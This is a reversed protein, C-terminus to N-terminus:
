GIDSVRVSRGEAASLRIADLVAQGAVGDHFTAPRPETAAIPEGLIRRRFADALRTYPARDLGTAHLWDYTTSFFDFPPPQPAPNTLDAPVEVEREGTADAHRVRDGDIWVTGGTGAIRTTMMLPGWSGVTSQLVGDVGDVTRFHVTFSDEATQGRDAVVPLGASVSDFEGLTARIQDIMHTGQAGLWGGGASGDTWWGPAESGEAAFMPLHMLLTALKPTGVAGEAVQRALLAQPTAYRFETGIQHVVGAREVADLMARAQTLDAAFPKECVVHLGREAAEIALEAHTHPPTAITVADIDAAALAEDLSTVANAIDFRAAREATRDRDRGILARVEFGADRFAPVHTICGFGTGIVALGLTNETM